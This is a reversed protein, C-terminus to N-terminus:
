SFGLCSSSSISGGSVNIWEQPLPGVQLQQGSLSPQLAACLHVSNILASRYRKIEGVSFLRCTSICDCHCEPSGITSSLGLVLNDGLLLDHWHGPTDPSMLMVLSSSSAWTNWCGVRSLTLTYFPASSWKELFFSLLLFGCVPWTLSWGLSSHQQLQAMAHSFALAVLDHRCKSAKSLSSAKGPSLVM